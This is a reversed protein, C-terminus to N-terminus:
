SAAIKDTFLIGNLHDIEHQACRSLLRDCRLTHPNGWIDTYEITVNNAREVSGNIGPISLCGEGLVSTEDSFKVIKPNAMVIPSIEALDMENEDLFCTPSACAFDTSTIKICRSVDIVCLSLIKGVQPAAIGIGDAKYMAMAMDAALKKLKGDFKTIHTTKKRLIRSRDNSVTVIKLPIKSFRSDM